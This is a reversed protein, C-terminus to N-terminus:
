FPNKRAAGADAEALGLRADYRCGRECDCAAALAGEARMVSMSRLVAIKGGNM